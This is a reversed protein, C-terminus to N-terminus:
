HLALQFGKHLHTVRYCLLMDKICSICFVFFFRPLLSLPAWKPVHGEAENEEEEEERTLGSQAVDGGGECRPQSTKLTWYKTRPGKSNTGEIYSNKYYVVYYQRVSGTDEDGNQRRWFMKSPWLGAKGEVAVLFFFNRHQISNPTRHQVLVLTTVETWQKGGTRDQGM